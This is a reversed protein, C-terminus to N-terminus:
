NTVHTRLKIIHIKFFPLLALSLRQAVEKGANDDWMKKFKQLWQYHRICLELQVWVSLSLGKRWKFSIFLTTFSCLLRSATLQMYLILLNIFSVGKGTIKRIGGQQKMYASLQFCSPTDLSYGIEWESRLNQPWVTSFWQALKLDLSNSTPLEAMTDNKCSSNLTLEVHFILM